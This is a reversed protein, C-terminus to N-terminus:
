IHFRRKMEIRATRGGLIMSGLFMFVTVLFAIDSVLPQTVIGIRILVLPVIGVLVMAVQLILYSQWNRRNILMLIALALDLLIIAAPLVYSVSWGSFGLFTDILIILLVAGAVGSLIRIRYGANDKLIIYGLWLLYALSCAVIEGWRLTPTLWVNLAICVSAIVIFAFSFIRYLVTTKRVGSVVDPYTHGEEKKGDLGGSCLPCKVADDLIEVGCYKCKSMIYEM